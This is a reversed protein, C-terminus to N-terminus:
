QRFSVAPSWWTTQYLEATAISFIDNMDPLAEEPIEEICGGFKSEETILIPLVQKMHRAKSMAGLSATQYQLILCASSGHAGSIDSLVQFKFVLKVV